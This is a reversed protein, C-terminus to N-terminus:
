SCYKQRLEDLMRHFMEHKGQGVRELEIKEFGSELETLKESSLHNAAIQFLVQNEKEIHRRLLGMYAEAHLQIRGSAGEVGDVHERLADRLGQIHARGADHEHLMVGIPGGDRSVGIEELAPFLLEEEKGHHCTDVFTGFFEILRRLDEAGGNGCSNALQFSVHALIDLSM